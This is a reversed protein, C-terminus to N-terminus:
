RSVRPIGGKKTTKRPVLLFVVLRNFPGRHCLHSHTLVRYGQHADFYTAFPHEDVFHRWLSHGTVCISSWEPEWENAVSAAGFRRFSEGARSAQERLGEAGRLGARAPRPQPQPRWPKDRPVRGRM